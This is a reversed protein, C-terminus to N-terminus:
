KTIAKLWSTFLDCEINKISNIYLAGEQISDLERQMDQLHEEEELVISKVHVPSGLSRLAKDYAPYLFAARLEIIYTVLLYAIKKLSDGKIGKTNKLFRCVSLDLTDLYRLSAMGGLLKDKHYSDYNDQTIKRIQQKLYYAHRFEEAAHKLMEERVKTPHECRAIKRAGCNEMYSLTNLWKAHLQPSSIIQRLLHEISHMDDTNIEM